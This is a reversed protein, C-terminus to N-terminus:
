APTFRFKSARGNGDRGMVAADWPIQAPPTVPAPMHLIPRPAPQVQARALAAKTSELEARLDAITRDNADAVRESAEEATKAEQMAKITALAESLSFQLQAVTADRQVLTETLAGNIAQTRADSEQALRTEDALRVIIDAATVAKNESM